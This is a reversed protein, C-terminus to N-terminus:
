KPVSLYTAPDAAHQSSLYYNESCNPCKQAELHGVWTALPVHLVAPAVWETGCQKCRLETESTGSM